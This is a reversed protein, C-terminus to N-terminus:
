VTSDKSLPAGVNAGVVKLKNAIQGGAAASLYSEFILAFPM